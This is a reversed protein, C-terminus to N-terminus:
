RSATAAIAVPSTRMAKLRLVSSVPRDNHIPKVIAIALMQRDHRERADERGAHHGPLSGVVIGIAANAAGIAPTTAVAKADTDDPLGATPRTWIQAVISTPPRGAAVAMM